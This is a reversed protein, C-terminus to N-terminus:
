LWLSKLAFLARRTERWQSFQKEIFITLQYVVMASLEECQTHYKSFLVASVLASVLFAFFCLLTPVATV